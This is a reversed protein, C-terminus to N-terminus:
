KLTMKQWECFRVCLITGKVNVCCGRNPPCPVTLAETALVGRRMVVSLVILIFSLDGIKTQVLLLLLFFFLMECTNLKLQKSILFCGPCDSANVQSFSIVQSLRMMQRM